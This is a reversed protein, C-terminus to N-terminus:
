AALVLRRLFSQVKTRKHLGCTCPAPHGTDDLYACSDHHETDGGNAKLWDLAEVKLQDNALKDRLQQETQM